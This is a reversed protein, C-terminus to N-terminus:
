WFFDNAQNKCAKWYRALVSRRMKQFFFDFISEYSKVNPPLLTFNFFSWVPGVPAKRTVMGLSILRGNKTTTFSPTTTLRALRRKFVIM